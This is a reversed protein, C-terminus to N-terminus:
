EHLTLTGVDGNVSAAGFVIRTHSMRGSEGRAVCHADGYVPRYFCSPQGSLVAGGVRRWEAWVENNSTAMVLRNATDRAFCVRRNYDIAFCDPDGTITQTGIRQWAGWTPGYTKQFVTNDTGRVFCDIRGLTATRGSGVTNATCTPRGNFTGDLTAWQACPQRSLCAIHSLGNNSNRVFCDARRPSSVCEPDGLLTGGLSNWGVWNGRLDRYNRNLSNDAGRVFCQGTICDPSGSFTGGLSTFTAPSNARVQISGDLARAYCRYWDAPTGLVLPHIDDDPNPDVAAPPPARDPAAAGTCSLTGQFTGGLSRWRGWAGNTEDWSITWLANDAGIAFCWFGNHEDGEVERVVCTPSADASQATLIQGGVFMAAALFFLRIFQKM